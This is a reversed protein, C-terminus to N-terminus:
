VARPSFCTWRALRDLSRPCDSHAAGAPSSVSRPAPIRSLPTVAAFRLRCALALDLGGGMCYGNVAAITILTSDAIRSFLKQGREAFSRAADPTLARLENINAGSAFVDAAGTFILARLGARNECETLIADLAALTATSLKNREAPRNFRIVAHFDSIDLAVRPSSAFVDM